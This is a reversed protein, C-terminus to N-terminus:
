DETEFKELAACADFLQVRQERPRNQDHFWKMAANVVTHKLEEHKERRRKQVLRPTGM